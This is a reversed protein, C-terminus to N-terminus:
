RQHSRNRRRPPLLLQLVSRVSRSVQLDDLLQLRARETSEPLVSRYWGKSIRQSASSTLLEEANLEREPVDMGVTFSLRLPERKFEDESDLRAQQQLQQQQQQDSLESVSAAESSAGSARVNRQVANLRNTSKSQPLPGDKGKGAASTCGGM